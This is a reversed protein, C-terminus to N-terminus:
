RRARRGTRRALRALAALAVLGASGAVPEPVVATVVDDANWEFDRESGEPPQISIVEASTFGAAPDDEVLGLFYVEAGDNLVLEPEAGNTVDARGPVRLVFDGPEIGGEIGAGIVYIGVAHVVRDFGLTFGDGALLPLPVGEEEVGLSRSGSTTDIEDIESDLVILDFGGEIEFTFTVGELSEGSAITTGAPVSEFDLVRVDGHGAIAADFAARETYATSAGQAAPALALLATSIGFGLARMGKTTM